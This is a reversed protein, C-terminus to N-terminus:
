VKEPVGVIVPKEEIYVPPSPQPVPAKTEVVDTLKVPEQPGHSGNSPKEVVPEVPKAGLAELLIINGRYDATWKGATRLLTDPLREVGARMALSAICRDVFDPTALEPKLDAILQLCTRRPLALAEVSEEAKNLSEMAPNLLDLYTKQGSTYMALLLDIFKQAQVEPTQAMRFVKVAEIVAPPHQPAQPAQPAQPQAPQQPAAQTQQTQQAPPQQAQAIANAIVKGLEATFLGKFFGSPGDGDGTVQPAVSKVITTFKEFNALSDEIGSKSPGGALQGRLAALEAKLAAVESDGGALQKIAAMERLQESVPTPPQVLKAVALEVVKEISNAGPGPPPPPPMYMPPPPPMGFGGFPGGMPPGFGDSPPPSSKRGEVRDLRDLLKVVLDNNTNNSGGMLREMMMLMMLGSLDGKEVANKQAANLLPNDRQEPQTMQKIDQVLGLTQRIRTAPDNPDEPQREAEITITTAPQRSPGGTRPDLVEIIYETHGSDNGFQDDIYDRLFQQMSRGPGVDDVSYDEIFELKGMDNRKSLRFKENSPLMDRLKSASRPEARARGARAHGRLAAPPVQVVIRPARAGRRAPPPKAEVEEEYEEGVEDTDEEEEEMVTEFDEEVPPKVNRPMTKKEEEPEEAPVEPTDDPTALQSSETMATRAWQLALQGKKSFGNGKKARYADLTQEYDALLDDVMDPEVPFALDVNTAWEIFDSLGARENAHKYGKLEKAKAEGYEAWTKM